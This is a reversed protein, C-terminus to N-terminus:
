AVGPMWSLEKMEVMTAMKRGREPM